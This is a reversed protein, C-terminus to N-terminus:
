GNRNLNSVRIMLYKIKSYSNIPNNLSLYTLIGKEKQKDVADDELRKQVIYYRGEFRFLHMLLLETYPKGTIPNLITMRYILVNDSTIPTVIEVKKINPHWNPYAQV